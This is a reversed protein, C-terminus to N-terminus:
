NNRSPVHYNTAWPMNMLENFAANLGMVAFGSASGWLAGQTGAEMVESQVEVITLTQRPPKGSKIVIDCQRKANSRSTLDPLFINHEVLSEPSISKEILQVLKEITLWDSTSM